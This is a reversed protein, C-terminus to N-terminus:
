LPIYNRVKSIVTEDDDCILWGERGAIRKLNENPKVAVPYGVSELITSNQETDGFGAATEPNIDYDSLFEKLIKEKTEKLGCNREGEGTFIGKETKFPTAAVEDAGVKESFPYIIDHPSGSILLTM